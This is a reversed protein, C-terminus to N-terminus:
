KNYLRKLVIRLIFVIFFFQFNKEVDVQLLDNSTTNVQNHSWFCLVTEKVIPFDQVSDAIM